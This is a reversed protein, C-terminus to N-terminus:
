RDSRRVIWVVIAYIPLAWGMVIALDPLARMLTASGSFSLLFVKVLAVTPLWPFLTDLWPPLSMDMSVLIVPLLLGALPIAAWPSMQQAAEFLSGLVLGVAILLLAGSIVALILLGWHVVAASNFAVAVVAATLCYFLGALAKGTVIQSVSAPSVLLVEMTHTQKEELMLYPVMFGGIIALVIVLVTAIMGLRGSGEAPPYVINGEIHVRVPRGLLETLYRETESGLESAASRASWVVYGELEPRLSQDFDAPIVLGLMQSNMSVLYEDLEQVSEVAILQYQDSEGWDAVLQSDGADYVIVRAVDSLKLLLPMAQGTLMVMVMGLIISITTKNKIADVIDKVVIAWVIRLGERLKGRTTDM